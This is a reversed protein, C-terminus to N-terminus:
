LYQDDWQFKVINPYLRRILSKASKNDRARVYETGYWEYSDAFYLDFEYVAMNREGNRFPVFWRRFRDKNSITPEYGNADTKVQRFKRLIMPYELPKLQTNERRM